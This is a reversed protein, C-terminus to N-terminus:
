LLVLSSHAFWLMHLLQLCDLQQIEEKLKNRKDRNGESICAVMKSMEAGFGGERSGTQVFLAPFQETGLLACSPLEWRM